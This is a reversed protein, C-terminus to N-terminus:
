KVLKQLIPPITQNPCNFRLKPSAIPNQGHKSWIYFQIDTIPSAYQPSYDFKLLKDFIEKPIYDVFVRVYRFGSYDLCLFDWYESAKPDDAADFVMYSSRSITKKTQKRRNRLRQAIADESM